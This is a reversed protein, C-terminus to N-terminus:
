GSKIRIGPNQEPTGIFEIGASELARRVDLLTSSRSPPIGEAAEFRKVTQLGVGAREALESVSWRLAARASRIQAATIMSLAAM